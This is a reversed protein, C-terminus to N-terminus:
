RRGHGGKCPKKIADEVFKEMTRNFVTYANGLGCITSFTSEGAFEVGYTTLNNANSGQLLPGGSDGFCGVAEGPLAGALLEYDKELAFSSWWFEAEEPTPITVADTYYWDLFKDKKNKFLLPYWDGKIARATGVGYFRKGVSGNVDRWGYGAMQFKEGLMRNEWRGIKVPKVNRPKSELYVVSIDRGGDMLLGAGTPSPPATIYGSIPIMQAGMGQNVDPGFAVYAGGGLDLANQVSPMCHRASVVAKDAVLTVTCLVDYYGFEPLDLVIAGVAAFKEGAPSGNLIAESGSSVDEEDMMEPSASCAMLATSALLAVSHLLTWARSMPNEMYDRVFRGV